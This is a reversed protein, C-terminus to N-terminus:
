PFGHSNLNDQEDAKSDLRNVSLLRIGMDRIRTLIGHLASQDAIPGSLTIIPIGDKGFGTTMVLEDFRSAWMESLHGKVQIEYHAQDSFTSHNM